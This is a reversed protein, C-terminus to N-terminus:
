YKKPPKIGTILEPLFVSEGTKADKVCNDFLSAIAFNRKNREDLVKKYKYFVSKQLGTKAVFDKYTPNQNRELYEFVVDQKSKRGGLVDEGIEAKAKKMVRALKLHVNQKRGNRKNKKIPIATEDAIHQRTVKAYPKNYVKLASFVDEETFPELPNLKSFTEILGYADKKLEAKPVGCKKAYVALSWVCWYRHGCSAKELITRLWWDYLAKKAKWNGVPQKKVIRREYWEPYKVKAEALPLKSKYAIDDIRKSKDTIWKNLYELSVKEGTNYCTTEEGKKTKTGVVRFGQLISQFQKKKDKSTYPNWILDTLEHKYDNLRQQVQPYLPVPEVLQYYLHLGGGSNVVYTPKPQVENDIQFFLNRIQETGVNDLDFVLAYLFRANASTRNKGFYSVPALFSFEADSVSEFLRKLDDFFLSTRVKGNNEYAVIGNPKGQEQGQEEFSGVPFLDRYFSSASTKEFFQSLYTEKEMYASQM